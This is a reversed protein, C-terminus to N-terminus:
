ALRGQKKLRETIEKLMEVSIGLEASAASLSIVGEHKVIYDYVKDDLSPPRVAITPAGCKECFKL